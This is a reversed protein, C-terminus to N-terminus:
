RIPEIMAMAASPAVALSGSSDADVLRSPQRRTAVAGADFLGAEKGWCQWGPKTERGFLELYFAGGQGLRPRPRANQGARKV